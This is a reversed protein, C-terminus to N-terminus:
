NKKVQLDLTEAMTSVEIEVLEGQVTVEPVHCDLTVPNVLGLGFCMPLCARFPDDACLVEIM